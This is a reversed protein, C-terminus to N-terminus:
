DLVPPPAGIVSFSNGTTTGLTGDNAFETRNKKAKNHLLITADGSNEFGEGHNGTAVNSDLTTAFMNLEVNFGDKLNREAKNKRLLCNSTFVVFGSGGCDVAVNSTLTETDGDVWYAPDGTTGCRRVVNNRVDLHHAVAGFRIGSRSCHEVLNDRITGEAGYVVFIGISSGRVTNKAVDPQGGTTSIGSSGDTLVAEVLCKTLTPREGDISIGNGALISRATCKTVTADDGSISIGRLRDNRVLSKTVSCHGGTLDIGGECGAVECQRVDAFAGSVDIGADECDLVVVREVRVQDSNTIVLGAGNGASVARAHRITLREIRFGDCDDVILAPGSPNPANSAADLITKGPDAGRIRLGLKGTVQANGIFVGPAIVITDGAQAADLAQQLTSIGAGADPLHITAAVGHPAIFMVAAATALCKMVCKM